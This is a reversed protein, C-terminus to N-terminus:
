ISLDYRVSQGRTEEVSVSIQSVRKMVETNSAMKKHLERALYEALLESTINVLPLIRVDEKPFVYTKGAFHATVSSSSTEIKLHDSNEPLLVYEDLYDTLARVTPKLINFDFAMGFEKDISNLLIEIRVYYNHGHLRESRSSDFITFHSGSFKFNEKELVIRYAM